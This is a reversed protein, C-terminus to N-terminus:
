LAGTPATAPAGANVTPEEFMSMDFSVTPAVDPEVVRISSADITLLKGNDTTIEQVKAAIEVGDSLNDVKTSPLLVGFSVQTRNLYESFYEDATHAAAVENPDRTLKGIFSGGAKEAALGSKFLGQVFPDAMALQSAAKCNFIHKQLVIGEQGKISSMVPQGDKGIVDIVNGNGQITLFISKGVSATAVLSRKTMIAKVSSSTMPTKTSM